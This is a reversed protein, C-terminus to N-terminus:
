ADIKYIYKNFAEPLSEYISISFTVVNKVPDSHFFKNMLFPINSKRKKRKRKKSQFSNLSLAM